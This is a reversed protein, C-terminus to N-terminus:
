SESRNEPNQDDSTVSSSQVEAGSEARPVQLSPHGIVNKWFKSIVGKLFSNDTNDPSAHAHSAHGCICLATLKLLCVDSIPAFVRFGERISSIRNPIYYM